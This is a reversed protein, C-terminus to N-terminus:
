GAAPSCCCPCSWCARASACCSGPRRRARRRHPTRRWGPPGPWCSPGAEAGVVDLKLKAVQAVRALMPRGVDIAQIRDLRIHAARRFLLGTRIRLETDTVLYSTYWWSLFGYAAAAPVLVLFAVLLWGLTLQEFWTRTREFDQLTFAVLGAIPAWARRWPTVPHLRKGEPRPPLPGGARPPTGPDTRLGAEGKPPSEGTSV